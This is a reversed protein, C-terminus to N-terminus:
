RNLITAVLWAVPPFVVVVFAFAKAAVVGNLAEEEKVIPVLATASVLTVKLQGKETPLEVVLKLTATLPVM